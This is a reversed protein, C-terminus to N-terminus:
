PSVVAGIHGSVAFHASCTGDFFTVMQEGSITIVNSQLVITGSINEIANSHTYSVRFSGDGPDFTGTLSATDVPRTMTIRSGNLQVIYENTLDPYDCSSINLSQLVINFSAPMSPTAVPTLTLIPASNSNDPTAPDSVPVPVPDVYVPLTLVDMTDAVQVLVVWGSLGQLTDVRLWIGLMDRGLVNLKTRAQLLEIIPADVNPSQRLNTPRALSVQMWYHPAVTPLLTPTLTATPIETPPEATFTPTPPEGTSTPLLATDAASVFSETATAEPTDGFVFNKIPEGFLIMSLVILGSVVGLVALAIVWQGSFRRGQSVYLRREQHLIGAPLTEIKKDEQLTFVSCGAYESLCAVAQHALAVPQPRATRLCYNEPSPFFSPTNLGDQAGLWPCPQAQTLIPRTHQSSTQATSARSIQVQKSDFLIVETDQQLYDLLTAHLTSLESLPVNTTLVLSLVESWRYYVLDHLHQSALEDLESYLTSFNDIILVPVNYLIDLVKQDSDHRAKILLDVLQRLSIFINPMPELQRSIYAALMSRGTDIDGVLILNGGPNEIFRDIVKIAMAFQSRRLPTFGRGMKLIDESGVQQYRQPLFNYDSWQAVQALHHEQIQCFCPMDSDANDPHYIRLGNCIPCPEPFQYLQRLRYPIGFKAPLEERWFTLMRRLSAPAFMNAQTEEQQKRGAHQKKM